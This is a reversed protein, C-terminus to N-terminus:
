CSVTVQDAIVKFSSATHLAGKSIYLSSCIVISGFSMLFIILPIYCYRPNIRTKKNSSSCHRCSFVNYKYKSFLLLVAWIFFFSMLIAPLFIIGRVYDWRDETLLIVVNHTNAFRPVRHLINVLKVQVYNLIYHYLSRLLFNYVHTSILNLVLPTLYDCRQSSLVYASFFRMRSVQSHPDM